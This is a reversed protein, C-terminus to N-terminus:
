KLVLKGRCKGCVYKTTDIRRKRKYSTGCTKCKYTYQKTSIRKLSTIEKCYRAGGVQNLLLIFDKDRHKYGKGELHLHYHCLEHKIIKVLAEKGHVALQHPNCEIHHSQLLYRGGTTRLRPNFRAQHVFPKNFSTLSIHEVLRQLEENTMVLSHVKKEQNELSNYM